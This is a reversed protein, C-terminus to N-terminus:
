DTALSIKQNLRHWAGGNVVNQYGNSTLVGKAAASRAGSACCTIVTKNKDKMKKLNSSLKDLPINISGDIHGHAYEGTTRVDVILAGETILQAYNVTKIGFMKKILDIM